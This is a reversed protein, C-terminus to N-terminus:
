VEEMFHHKFWDFSKRLEVYLAEKLEKIAESVEEHGKDYGCWMCKKLKVEYYNHGCEPCRKLKLKM